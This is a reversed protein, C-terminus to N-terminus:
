RATSSSNRRTTAGNARRIPRRARPDFDRREFFVRGIEDQPFGAQGFLHAPVTRPATPTRAPMDFTRCHRFRMQACGEINVAAPEIKNERMVFVFDRLATARM